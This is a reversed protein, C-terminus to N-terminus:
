ERRARKRRVARQGAIRRQSEGRAAAESQDVAIPFGAEESPRVSRRVPPPPPCQRRKLPTHHCAPSSSLSLSLSSSISRVNTLSVTLKTRPSLSTHRHSPSPQNLNSLDNTFNPISKGNSICTFNIPHGNDNCTRWHGMRHNLIDVITQGQVRYHGKITM